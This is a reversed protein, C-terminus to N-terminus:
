IAQNRTVATIPMVVKTEPGDVEQGALFFVAIRMTLCHEESSRLAQVNDIADELQPAPLPNEENLQIPSPVACDRYHDQSPLEPEHRPTQQRFVFARDPSPGHSLTFYPAFIHSVLL